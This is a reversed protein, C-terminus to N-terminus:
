VPYQIHVTKFYVVFLTDKKKSYVELRSGQSGDALIHEKLKSQLQYNIFIDYQVNIDTIFFELASQHPERSYYCGYEFLQYLQVHDVQEFDKLIDILNFWPKLDQILLDQKQAQTLKAFTDKDALDIIPNNQYCCLCPAKDPVACLLVRKIM